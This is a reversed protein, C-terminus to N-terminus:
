ELLRFRPILRDEVMVEENWMTLPRIWRESNGYLAQYVVFVEPATPDGGLVSCEVEYKNGKYHEYIGETPYKVREPKLTEEPWEFTTGKPYAWVRDIVWTELTESHKAEVTPQLGMAWKEDPPVTFTSTWKKLCGGCVIFSITQLDSPYEDGYGGGLEIHHFDWMWDDGPHSTAPSERGCANCQVGTPVLETEPKKLRRVVKLSM